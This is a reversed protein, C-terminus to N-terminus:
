SSQQRTWSSGGFVVFYEDGVLFSPAQCRPRPPVGGVDLTSWRSGAGLGTSRDVCALLVHLDNLFVNRRRPSGDQVYAHHAWGGFVFVCLTETKAKAKTETDTNAEAEAEAEAERTGPYVCASHCWRPCPRKGQVILPETRWTHTQTDLLLLENSLGRTEVNGGFTLLFRDALVTTSHGFRNLMPANDISEIEM